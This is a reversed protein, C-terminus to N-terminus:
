QLNHYIVAIIEFVDYSKRTLCTDVSRSQGLLSEDLIAFFNFAMVNCWNNFSLQFFPSLLWTMFVYLREKQVYSYFECAVM